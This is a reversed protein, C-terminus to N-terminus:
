EYSIEKVNQNMLYIKFLYPFTFILVFLVSFVIKGVPYFYDARVIYVSNGMM